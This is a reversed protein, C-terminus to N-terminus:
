NFINIIEKEYINKDIDKYVCFVIHVPYNFKMLWTKVSSLAIITAERNPYKYEGTSICCFAISHKNIDKLKNLCNLYCKSLTIGNEKTGQYIPGVVHFVYECPLNYGKTIILDGSNIKNGNLVNICEERMRPGAKSHIINDICEHNPIMCGIGNENGANVICDIELTTIDGKWLSIPWKKYCSITESLILPKNGLEYQLILDLKENIRDPVKNKYQTLVNNLFKRLLFINNRVNHPINIGLYSVIFENACFKIADNYELKDM